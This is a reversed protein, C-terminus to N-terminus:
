KGRAHVKSRISKKKSGTGLVSQMKTMFLIQDYMPLFWSLSEIFWAPQNMIGGAYLMQKSMAAVLLTRFKLVVSDPGPWTAKAPCFGYYQGGKYLQMPFVSPNDAETFDWRNTKCRRLKQIREPCSACDFKRGDGKSELM